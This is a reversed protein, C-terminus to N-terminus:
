QLYIIQGDIVRWNILVMWTPDCLEVSLQAHFDFSNITFRRECSPNFIYLAMLNLFFPGFTLLYIISNKENHIHIGNM